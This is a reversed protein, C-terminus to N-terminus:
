REIKIEFECTKAGCIISQLIKVRVPRGLATEFLQEYWGTACQCYTKDKFPTSTKSVMGCYCRDYGGIITNKDKLKLRGGGIHHENLKEIFDELSRSGEMATKAAKRTTAGCCMRGCLVLIQYTKRVGIIKKMRRIMERIYDAKARQNLQDFKDAGKLIKQAASVGAESVIIRAIRGIRGATPLKSSQARKKV